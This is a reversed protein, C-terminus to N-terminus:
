REPPPVREMRVLLAASPTVTGSCYTSLRPRSTGIREAFQARSLGSRGVLQRVRTAVEDREQRAQEERAQAIRRSLLAAVGPEDSYALYEEVQRAVPGWPSARIARGLRAWDGITGREVLTVIAEYPWTELDDGGVNVNRFQVTV